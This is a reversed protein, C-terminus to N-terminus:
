IQFLKKAAAPVSLSRRFGIWAESATDFLLTAVMDSVLGRM